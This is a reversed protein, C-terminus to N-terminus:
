STQSAVMTGLVDGDDHQGRAGTFRIANRAQFRPDVVVNRFREERALHECPYTGDHPAAEGLKRAIHDFDGPDPEIGRRAANGAAAAVDFEAVDLEAHKMEEHRMRLADVATGLQQVLHPAIANEDLLAGDVDVDPPQSLRELRRTVLFQKFGHTSHTVAEPAAQGLARSPGTGRGCVLQHFRALPMSYRLAQTPARLAGNPM